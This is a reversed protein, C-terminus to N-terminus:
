QLHLGLAPEKRLTFMVLARGSFVLTPGALGAEQVQLSGGAAGLFAVAPTWTPLGGWRNDGGASTNQSRTDGAMSTQGDM